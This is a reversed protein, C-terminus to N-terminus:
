PALQAWLLPQAASVQPRPEVDIRLILWEALIVALVGLILAAM